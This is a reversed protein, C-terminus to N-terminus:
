RRAPKAAAFGGIWRWEAFAIMTISAEKAWLSGRKMKSDGTWSFPPLDSYEEDKADNIGNGIRSYDAATTIVVISQVDGHILQNM